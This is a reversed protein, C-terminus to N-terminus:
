GAALLGLWVATLTTAAIAIWLSALGQREEDILARTRAVLYPMATLLSWYASAPRKVGLALLSREDVAALAVSALYFAVGIVAYEVPNWELGAFPGILTAGYVAPLVVLVSGAISDSSPETHTTAHRRHLRHGLTSVTHSM